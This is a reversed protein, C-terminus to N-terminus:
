LLVQLMSLMCCGPCVRSGALRVQGRLPLRHRGAPGGPVQPGHRAPLRHDGATTRRGPSPLWAPRVTAEPFRCRSYFFFFIFFVLFYFFPNKNMRWQGVSNPPERKDRDEMVVLGVTGVLRGRRLRGEMKQIAEEGVVEMREIRALLQTENCADGLAASLVFLFLFQVFM